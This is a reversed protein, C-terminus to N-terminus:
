FQTISPPREVEMEVSDENSFNKVPSGKLGIDPGPPLYRVKFDVPVKRAEVDLVTDPLPIPKEFFEWYTKEEGEPPDSVAVRM